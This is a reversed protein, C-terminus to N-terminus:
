FTYFKDLFRRKTSKQMFGKGPLLIWPNRLYRSKKKNFKNENLGKPVVPGGPPGYSLIGM